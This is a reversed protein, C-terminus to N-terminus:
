QEGYNKSILNEYLIEYAIIITYKTTIMFSIFILYNNYKKSIFLLSSNYLKFPKLLINSSM